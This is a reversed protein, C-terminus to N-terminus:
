IYCWAYFYTATTDTTSGELDRCFYTGITLDAECHLPEDAVAALAVTLGNGVLKSVLDHCGRLTFTCGELLLFVGVTHSFGVFCESVEAYLSRKTKPTFSLFKGSM